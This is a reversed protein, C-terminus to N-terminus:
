ISQIESRWNTVKKQELLEFRYAYWERHEATIGIFEKDAYQVIHIEGIKLRNTHPNMSICKVKDGVRFKNTM